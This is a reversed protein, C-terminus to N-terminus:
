EKEATQALKLNMAYIPNLKENKITLAGLCYVIIAVVIGMLTPVFFTGWKAVAAGTLWAAVGIWNVGDFPEWIDARGKGMIWYDAIAVGAVAPVLAAIINLFSAFVDAIGLLALATGAAGAILTVMARREDKLKFMNCIAIGAIYANGTNTTWTALILVLMGIIPLGFNSFVVSLDYSGASVALFGGIVLSGIGAPLVGVICSLITDKRCKGYRTYDGCTVAGSAFGAVALTIGYTWGLFEAPQYATVAAAAGRMLASVVGWILMVFLAPVSVRNLFDILKVGYVSTIFMLSGWIICSLWLPFAVNLYGSMINCFSTACLATQSGFWGINSVAIILSVLFSSGRVGYARSIAVTCPLGLDSSQIGMLCMYFVVIIYGIIMCLCSQRFNMGAMVMSGVMLAPICIVSGAWIFALSWWSRRENEPVRTLTTTEMASNNKKTRSEEM